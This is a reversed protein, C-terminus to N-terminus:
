WRRGSPSTPFSIVTWVDLDIWDAEAEDVAEVEDGLRSFHASLTSPAILVDSMM